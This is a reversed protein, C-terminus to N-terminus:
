KGLGTLHSFILLIRFLLSLCDCVVGSKLPERLNLYTWQRLCDWLFDVILLHTCPFLLTLFGSLGLAGICGIRVEVWFSFLLLFSFGRKKHLEGM